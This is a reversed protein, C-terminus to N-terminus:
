KTARRRSAVALLGLGLLALTTPEPVSAQYIINDVYLNHQNPLGPLSAIAYSIGATSLGVFGCISGCDTPSISISDLLVNASNFVQFLVPSNNYYALFGVASVEATFDFRIAGGRTTSYGGDNTYNLGSATPPVYGSNVHAGSVSLFGDGVTHAGVTAGTFDYNVASASFANRAIFGANAPVAAFAMLLGALGTILIKKGIM